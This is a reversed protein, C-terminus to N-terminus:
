KFPITKKGNGENSKKEYEGDVFTRFNKLGDSFLGVTGSKATPGRGPLEMVRVLEEYAVLCDDWDAVNM